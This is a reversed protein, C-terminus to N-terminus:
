SRARGRLTCVRLTCARPTIRAIPALPEAKARLSNGRPARQASFTVPAAAAQAAEAEAQAQAQAAAAAEQQATIAAGATLFDKPPGFNLSDLLLDIDLDPNAEAIAAIEAAAEAQKDVDEQTLQRGSWWNLDGVNPM